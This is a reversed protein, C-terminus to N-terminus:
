ATAKHLDLVIEAEEVTAVVCVLGAVLRGCLPFAKLSVHISVYFGAIGIGSVFDDVNASMAFAITLM